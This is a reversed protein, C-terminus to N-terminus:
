KRTTVYVRDIHSEYCKGPECVICYRFNQLLLTDGNGHETRLNRRMDSLPVTLACWENERDLGYSAFRERPISIEYEHVDQIYNLEIFISKVTSFDRIKAMVVLVDDAYNLPVSLNAVITRFDNVSDDGVCRLSSRGQM